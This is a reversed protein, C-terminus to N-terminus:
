RSAPGSKASANVSRLQAREPGGIWPSQGARTTWQACPALSLDTRCGPEAWEYRVWRRMRSAQRLGFRGRRRGMATGGKRLPLGDDQVISKADGPPHRRQLRRQDPAVAAAAGAVHREGAAHLEAGVRLLLAEVDPQDIAAARAVLHPVQRHELPDANGIERGMREVGNRAIVRDERQTRREVPAQQLAMADMRLITRLRFDFPLNRTALRLRCSCSLNRDTQGPRPSRAEISEQGLLETKPARAERSQMFVSLQGDQRRASVRQTVCDDVSLLDGDFRPLIGDAHSQELSDPCSDVSSWSSNIWHAM